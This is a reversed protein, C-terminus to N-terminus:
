WCTEFTMKARQSTNLANMSTAFSIFPPATWRSTRRSQSRKRTRGKTQRSPVSGKEPRIRVHRGYTLWSTRSVKDSENIGRATNPGRTPRLGPRAGELRITLIMTDQVPKESSDNLSTSADPMPLSRERHSTACAVPSKELPNYNESNVM